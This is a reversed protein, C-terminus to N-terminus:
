RLSLGEVLCAPASDVTTHKQFVDLYWDLDPRSQAKNTGRRGVLQALINIMAQSYVPIRSVVFAGPPAFISMVLLYYSSYCITASSPKSELSEDARSELIFTQPQQQHMLQMKDGQLKLIAM